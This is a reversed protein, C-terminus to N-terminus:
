DPLRSVEDESVGGPPPPAHLPPIPAPSLPQMTEGSSQRAPRFSEVFRKFVMGTVNADQGSVDTLNLMWVERNDVLLTRHIVRKSGSRGSITKFGEIGNISARDWKLLYPNYKAFKDPSGPQRLRMHRVNIAYYPKGGVTQTFAIWFVGPGKPRMHSTENRVQATGPYDAAFGYKENSYTKWAVAAPSPAPPKAVSPAPPKPPSPPKVAPPKVAPSVSPKPAPKTPPRTAPPAPPKAAPIAPPKAAPPVPPKAAPIASPKVAPPVPPKPGLPAQAVVSPKPTPPKGTTSAAGPRAPPIKALVPPKAAPTTTKRAVPAPKSAAAPLKIAPKSASTPPKPAPPPPVAVPTPPAAPAKNEVAVKVEATWVEEGAANSAISKVLYEGDEVSTTDWEVRYPATTTAGLGNGNLYFIVSAAGATEPVNARVAVSGRVPLTRSYGPGVMIVKKVASAAEEAAFVPVSLSLVVAAAAIIGSVGSRLLSM